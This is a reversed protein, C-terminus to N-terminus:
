LQEALLEAKLDTCMKHIRSKNRQVCAQFHLLRGQTDLPTRGKLVDDSMEVFTQLVLAAEAARRLIKKHDNTM